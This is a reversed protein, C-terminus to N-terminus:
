PIRDPDLRRNKLGALNYRVVDIQPIVEGRYNKRPRDLRERYTGRPGGFECLYDSGDSWPTTKIAHEWADSLLQGINM